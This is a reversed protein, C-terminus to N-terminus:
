QLIEMGLSGPFGKSIEQLWGAFGSWQLIGPVSIEGNSVDSMIEVIFANILMCVYVPRGVYM